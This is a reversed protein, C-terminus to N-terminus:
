NPESRRETAHTRGSQLKHRARLLYSVAELLTQEESLATGRPPANTVVGLRFDRAVAEVMDVSVWSQRQGYATILGNECIINILRPIGRSSRHVIELTAPPFIEVDALAGALQLRRVVYNRTEALSLPQLEARLSIRQKLQRLEHSDLKDDLEPQGVLVIQLLKSQNSELNTLLRVEELLESSLHHAEDVILVTTLRMRDREVLHRGLSRLLEGKNTGSKSLGLESGIYQLFEMPSLLSNSIYASGVDSNKLLQLLCRVVLTKGTGVEGTLLVVGKHKRVGYYLTALAENHRATPFLFVPDPTIEFPSRHLRFFTEYM